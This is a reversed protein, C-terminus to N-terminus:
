SALYLTKAPCVTRFCRVDRIQTNPCKFYKLLRLKLTQSAVPTEDSCSPARHCLLFIGKESNVLFKNEKSIAISQVHFVHLTPHLGCVTYVNNVQALHSPLVYQAPRSTNRSNRWPPTPSLLTRSCERWSAPSSVVVSRRSISPSYLWKFCATTYVIFKLCDCQTVEYKISTALLTWLIYMSNAKLIYLYWRTSFLTM